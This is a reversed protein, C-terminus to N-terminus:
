FSTEKSLKGLLIPKKRANSKGNKKKKKSQDYVPMSPINDIRNLLRTIRLKTIPAIDKTDKIEILLSLMVPINSIMAGVLLDLGNIWAVSKEDQIILLDECAKYLEDVNFTGYVDTYSEVTWPKAPRHTGIM